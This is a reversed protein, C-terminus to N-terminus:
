HSVISIMGNLLVRLAKIRLLLFIIEMILLSIIFFSFDFRWSAIAIMFFMCMFLPANKGRLYIKQIVFVIVIVVLLGLYGFNAWAEGLITANLVLGQDEPAVEEGIRSGLGEPKDKWLSKPIFSGFAKVLMTEGYLYEKRDPYEHVLLNLFILNSGETLTIM